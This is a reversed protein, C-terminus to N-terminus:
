WHCHSTVWRIGCFTSVNLKFLPRTYAWAQLLVVDDRNLKMGIEMTIKTSDVSTVYHGTHDKIYRRL